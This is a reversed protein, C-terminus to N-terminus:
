SFLFKVFAGPNKINRLILGNLGVANGLGGSIGMLAISIAFLQPWILAKVVTLPLVVVDIVALLILLVISAPRVCLGLAFLAAIVLPPYMIWPVVVGHSTAVSGINAAVIGGFSIRLLVLATGFLKENTGSVIAGLM